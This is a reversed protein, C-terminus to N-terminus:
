PARVVLSRRATRWGKRTARVTCTGTHRAVVRRLVLRGRANTRRSRRRCAGGVRVRARENTKVRLKTRRGVVLARPRVKLKLRPKAVPGPTPGPGPAIGGPRTFVDAGFAGPNPSEAYGLHDLGFLDEVTRLLSYHNYAATVRTGPEIYPSILVAGIKGGGPGFIPGGANPTNVSMEDCCASADGGPPSAEAEDFTVILLGGDAYAPSALIPPIHQSLWTDISEVGGPEGDVCPEDHGDHCLNPTVFSYSPTTSASQLDKALETYDVDFKDCSPTDTISHFYVFPNHRAAYQDGVRADQTPDMQNAEPHRCTKPTGEPGNAMDEMYGKWTLGKQELQNAVTQVTAPYVSGTGMAQGDPGITGPAVDKYLVSDAQTEPNPGQGSVLAIYNGLSLHTTAYYNEVLAGQAPLTKGLYPATSDPGFTEDYGKNEMVVVFVHKVPPLAAQSSGALAAWALLAAPALRRLV